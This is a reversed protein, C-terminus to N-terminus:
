LDAGQPRPPWDKNKKRKKRQNDSWAAYRPLEAEIKDAVKRLAAAIKEAHDQQDEMIAIPDMPEHMYAIDPNTGKRYGELFEEWHDRNREFDLKEKLAQALEAIRIMVAASPAGNRGKGIQMILAPEDDKADGLIHLMIPGDATDPEGRRELAESPEVGRRLEARVKDNKATEEASQFIVTAM